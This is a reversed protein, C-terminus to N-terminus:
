QGNIAGGKSINLPKTNGKIDILNITITLSQSLCDASGSFSVAGYLSSYSILLPLNLSSPCLDGKISSIQINQLSLTKKIQQNPGCVLNVTGGEAFNIGWAGAQPTCIVSATSNSQALRLYTQIETVAKNLMQAQAFDKYNVFAIVSLIATISIVVLLEILTFGLASRM